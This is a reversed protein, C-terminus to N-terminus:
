ATRDIRPRPAFPRAAGSYARSASHGSPPSPAAQALLQVGFPATLWRYPDHRARRRDEPHSRREAARRRDRADRREDSWTHFAGPDIKM